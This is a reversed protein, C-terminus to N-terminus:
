RVGPERRMWDSHDPFRSILDGWVGHTGTGTREYRECMGTRMEASQAEFVKWVEAEEVEPVDLGLEVGYRRMRELTALAYKWNALPKLLLVEGRALSEVALPHIEARWRDGPGHEVGIASLAIDFRALREELTSPEVKDPVEVVRGALEFVDAFPGRTRAVAGRARLAAIVLDRDRQSPAWLDLDRPSQGTILTKFAGGALFFRAGSDLGVTAALERRAFEIVDTEALSCLPQQRVAHRSRYHTHVGEVTRWCWAGELYWPWDEASIPVGLLRAAAATIVSDHTAFVHVGPEDGAIALMHHALYRAAEEPRAMGPLADAGSVLHEMVGEHGLRQWNQWAVDGDLVFAGPDGLLRDPVVTQETGAGARLAEATQVCRVLPSSHLTRLRAGIRRGLQSALEWGVETIPLVRGAEGDPLDNRVSHRLLLVVPRDRPARELGELTSPPIRWDIATM